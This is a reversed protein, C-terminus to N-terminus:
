REVKKGEKGMMQSSIGLLDVSRPGLFPDGIAILM